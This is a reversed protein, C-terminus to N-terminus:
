VDAVIVRKDLTDLQGSLGLDNSCTSPAEIPHGVGFIPRRGALCIVVWM